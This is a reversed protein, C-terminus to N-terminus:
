YYKHIQTKDSQELKSITWTTGHTGSLIQMQLALEEASVWSNQMSYM